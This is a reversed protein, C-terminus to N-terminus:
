SKVTGNSNLFMIWVAGRDTGGDDDKYAGVAIDSNGDNNLDGIAAVSCGLYDYDHVTGSFSGQTDSIKQYSLVQGTEARAASGYFYAAILCFSVVAHAWVDRSFLM